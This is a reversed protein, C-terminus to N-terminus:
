KRITEQQNKDAMFTRYQRVNRNHEDLTKAFRHGGLGDAVFYLYDSSAPNLVAQLSAFGPNSIATKPLGRLMYTNWEHMEKLHKKLLRKPAVGKKELGYIVTPDSQLPMKLNLRNIFVSAVLAREEPQGTEQEVISALIVAQRPSTIPLNAKRDSWLEALTMEFKQEAKKLIKHRSMGHTYFYTDPFLSGEEPIDIIQGRMFPSKNLISIIKQSTIGEPFTVKRQLSVGANLIDMTKALTSRAPIEYEGVKPVFPESSTYKALFYYLRNPIIQHRYLTWSITNDGDGPQVVIIKASENRGASNTVFDALVYGAIGIGVALFTFLLTLRMLLRFAQKM